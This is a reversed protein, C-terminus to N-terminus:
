IEAGPAMEPTQIRQNGAPVGNGADGAAKRVPVGNGADVASALRNLVYGRKLAPMSALKSLWRDGVRRWSLRQRKNRGAFRWDHLVTPEPFNCWLCEIVTSGRTRTRYRICRWDKLEAEYLPSPYGSLLIFCDLLKLIHLLSLHQGETLEHTYYRRNKRTSLLYPPDCYIVAAQARLWPIGPRQDLLCRNLWDIGCGVVNPKVSKDLDITWCSPKPEIMRTIVASGAFPEILWKCRPIQGIIRQWTGAQAKSGPYGM